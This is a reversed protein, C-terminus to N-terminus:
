FIRVERTALISLFVGSDRPSAGPRVVVASFLYRGAVLEVPLGLSLIPVQFPAGVTVNRALPLVTPSFLDTAVPAVLSTGGVRFSGGRPPVGNVPDPATGLPNTFALGPGTFEFLYAQAGPVSTWGFTTPALLSLTADPGPALLTPRVGPAPTPGPRPTPAPTPAAAAPLLSPVRVIREESFTGVFRGAADLAAVRIRYLGPAPAPHQYYFVLGEPTQVTVFLDGTEPPGAPAAELLLTLTEGRAYTEQSTSLRLDLAGAPVIGGLWLVLPLM